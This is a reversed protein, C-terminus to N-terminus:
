SPRGVARGGQAHVKKIEYAARQEPTADKALELEQGEATGDDTKSIVKLTVKGTAPQNEIAKLRLRLDAHDKILQDIGPLLEQLRKEVQENVAKALAESKALEVKTLEAAAADDATKRALAVIVSEDAAKKVLAAVAELEATTSRAPKEATAFKVLEEVSVKGENILKALVDVPADAVIDEAKFLTIMSDPNSPRDVLSIESLRLKTIHPRDVGDVKESKRELAKGGISFGKYVEAVVKEWADKDVVHVGIEVSKEGFAYEKVTGAAKPQHMERINAFKMYEPWAGKIADLKVVEGQSDVSETSAVGWVMQSAKDIKTIEAYLKMM